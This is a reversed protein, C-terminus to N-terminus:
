LSMIKCIYFNNGVLKLEDFLTRCHSDEEKDEGVFSTLRAMSQKEQHSRKVHLLIARILNFGDELELRSLDHEVVHAKGHGQRQDSNSTNTSDNTDSIQVQGLRERLNATGARKGFM